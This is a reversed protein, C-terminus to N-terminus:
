MLTPGLLVMGNGDNATPFQPAGVEALEEAVISQEILTLGGGGYEAPWGPALLGRQLLSARWTSRFTAREEESLAGFGRWEPGLLKALLDRVETRYHQEAESYHLDM